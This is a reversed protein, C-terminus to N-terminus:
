RNETKNIFKEQLEFIIEKVKEPNSIQSFTFKGMESATEIRLDGFDFLAPLVGKVEITIDQIKDYTVSSEIRNFLGPSKTSIIREDTLIWCDLYYEMVVLFIIQWLIPLFLSLFFLFLYRLNLSSAEPIIKILWEPASPTSSFVIVVMPIVVLLFFMTGLVLQFILVIRHRRYISHIKEDPRLIIM